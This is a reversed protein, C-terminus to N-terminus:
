IYGNEVCWNNASLLKYEEINRSIYDSAEKKTRPYSLDFKERCFENMCEILEKQKTTMKEEKELWKKDVKQEELSM